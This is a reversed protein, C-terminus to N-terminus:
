REKGEDGGGSGRRRKRRQKKVEEEEEEKNWEAKEEGRKVEEMRGDKRRERLDKKGYLLHGKISIIM